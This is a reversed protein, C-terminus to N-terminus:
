GEIKGNQHFTPFTLEDRVKIELERSKLDQDNWIYLIGKNEVLGNLDIEDFVEDYAPLALDLIQHMNKATHMMKNKSTVTTFETVLKNLDIVVRDFDIMSYNLQDEIAGNLVRRYTNSDMKERDYYDEVRLIGGRACFSFTPYMTKIHEEEKRPDFPTKFPAYRFEGFSKKIYKIHLNVEHFIGELSGKQSKSQM